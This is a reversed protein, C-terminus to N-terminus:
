EVKMAALQIEKWDAMMAVMLVALKAVMQEVKQGVKMAVM